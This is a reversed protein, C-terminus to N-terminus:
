NNANIDGGSFGAGPTQCVSPSLRGGSQGVITIRAKAIIVFIAQEDIEKAFARVIENLACIEQAEDRVAVMYAVSIDEHRLGFLDLWWGQIKSNNILSGGSFRAALRDELSAVSAACRRWKHTPIFFVYPILYCASSETSLDAIEACM